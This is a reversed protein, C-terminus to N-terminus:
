TKRLVKSLSPNAEVLITAASLLKPPIDEFIRESLSRALATLIM